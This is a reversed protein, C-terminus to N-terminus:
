RPLGSGPTWWSSPRAIPPAAPLFRDRATGPLSAHSALNVSPLLGSPAVAPVPQRAAHITSGAVLVAALLVVVLGAARVRDIRDVRDQDRRSHATPSDYRRSM